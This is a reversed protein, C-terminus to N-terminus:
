PMMSQVLEIHEDIDEDEIAEAIHSIPGLWRPRVGEPAAVGTTEMMFAARKISRSKGHGKAVCLGSPLHTLKYGNQERRYAWFGKAPTKKKHLHSFSSKRIMYQTESWGTSWEKEVMEGDWSNIPDEKLSATVPVEDFEEIDFKEEIEKNPFEAEIRAPTREISRIIFPEGGAALDFYEQLEKLRIMKGPTWEFEENNINM